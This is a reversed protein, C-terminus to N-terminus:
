GGDVQEGTAGGVQRAIRAYYWDADGAVAEIAKAIEEAVERRCDRCPGALETPRRVPLAPPPPAPPLMTEIRQGRDYRDPM